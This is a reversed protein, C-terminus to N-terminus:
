GEQFGETLGPCPYSRQLHLLTELGICTQWVALISMLVLITAPPLEQGKQLLKRVLTVKVELSPTTKLQGRKGQLLCLLLHHCLYPVSMNLLVAM